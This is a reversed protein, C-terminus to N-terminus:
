EKEVQMRKKTHMHLLLEMYGGNQKFGNLFFVFKITQVRSNNYDFTWQQNIM